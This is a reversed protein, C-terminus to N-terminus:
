ASWAVGISGSEPVYGKGAPRDRELDRGTRLGPIWRHRQDPGGRSSLAGSAATRNGCARAPWGGPTAIAPWARTVGAAFPAGTPTPMSALDTKFGPLKASGSPRSCSSPTPRRSMSPIAWAPWPIAVHHDVEAPAEPPLQTPRSAGWRRLWADCRRSQLAQDGPGAPGDSGASSSGSGRLNPSLPKTDYGEQAPLTRSNRKSCPVKGASLRDM